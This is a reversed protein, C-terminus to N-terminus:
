RQGRKGFADTGGSTSCATLNVAMCAALLGALRKKM